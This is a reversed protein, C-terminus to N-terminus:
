GDDVETGLPTVLFVDGNIRNMGGGLGFVVGSAFDLVRRAVDQEAATLDLLVPDGAMVHEAVDRADAFVQLRVVVFQRGGVEAEADEAPLRADDGADAVPLQPVTAWSGWEYGGRLPVVEALGEWEEEPADSPIRM